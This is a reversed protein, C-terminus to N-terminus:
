EKWDMVERVDEMSLNHVNLGSVSKIINKRMKIEEGINYGDPATFTMQKGLVVWPLGSSHLTNM